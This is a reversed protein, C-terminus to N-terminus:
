LKLENSRTAREHAFHLNEAVAELSRYCIEPTHRLYWILDDRAIVTADCDTVAALETCFKAEALTETLGFIEGVAAFRAIGPDDDSLRAVGSRLVIVEVPVTGKKYISSGKEYHRSHMITGLRGISPEDLGSLLRDALIPGGFRSLSFESYEPVM